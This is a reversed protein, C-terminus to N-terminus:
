QIHNAQAIRAIQAFQAFFVEMQAFQALWKHSLIQVNKIYSNINRLVIVCFRAYQQTEIGYFRFAELFKWFVEM